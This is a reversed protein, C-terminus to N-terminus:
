RAVNLTEIHHIVAARTENLHAVLLAQAAAAERARIAGILSRHEERWADRRSDHGMDRLAFREVQGRLQMVIQLTKPRQAPEYLAGHFSRDGALWGGRTDELELEAQISALRVLSKPTHREVARLLLHGELMVRLDFIEDLQARSPLPIHAGRNPVVDVLGESGLIQLAERVPIRSAGYRTALEDQRLVQGSAWVGENIEDRLQQALSAATTMSAM